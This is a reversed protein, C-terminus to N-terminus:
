EARRNPRRKDHDVRPALLLPDLAALAPFCVRWEPDVDVGNLSVRPYKSSCFPASPLVALSGDNEAGKAEPPWSKMLFDVVM